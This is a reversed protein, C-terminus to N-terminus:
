EACICPRSKGPLPESFSGEHPPARVCRCVGVYLLVCACANSLECLLSTPTATFCQSICWGPVKRLCTVWTIESRGLRLLGAWGYNNERRGWKNRDFHCCQAQKKRFIFSLSHWQSLASHSRLKLNRYGWSLKELTLVPVEDGSQLSCRAKGSESGCVLM